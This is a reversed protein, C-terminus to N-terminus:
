QIEYWPEPMQYQPITSHYHMSKEFKEIVGSASTREEYTNKSVLNPAAEGPVHVDGGEMLRVIMSATVTGEGVASISHNLSPPGTSTVDTDTHSVMASTTRTSSGAAIFENTAPIESGSAWPCLSPMDGLGEDDGNAVISLGVREEDEATAILSSPSAVYGFDKSVKLNPEEDSRAEFNNKFEVYGDIADVENAYRIQGARGGAALVQNVGPHALTSGGGNNEETDHMYTWNLSSEHTFDGTVIVDTTTVIGFGEPPPPVPPSAWSIGAIAVICIAVLSLVGRKLFMM